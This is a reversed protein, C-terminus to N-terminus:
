FPLTHTMATDSQETWSSIDLALEHKKPGDRYLLKKNELIYEYLDKTVKVDQECYKIIEDIKGEKWWHYAQLGDASKRTGLTASAVNDLKLRRGLSEKIAVMIDISKIHTLDGPYYKNLLPIDFHDSNYGVLADTSEIIPWLRPLDELLFSSYKNTESNYISLVSIDLDAPNNSGVDEFLNRTEIDFVIYKM